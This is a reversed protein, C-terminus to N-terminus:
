RRKPKRGPRAPLDGRCTACLLVDVIVPPMATLYHETVRTPPDSEILHLVRRARRGPRRCAYCSTPAAANAVAHCTPCSILHPATPTWWAVAPAQMDIHGCVQVQDVGGRGVLAEIARSLGLGPTRRPGVIDRAAANAADLQEALGVMRAATAEVQPDMTM